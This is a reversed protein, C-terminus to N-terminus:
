LPTNRELTYFFCQYIGLCASMIKPKVSELVVVCPSNLGVYTPKATRKTGKNFM